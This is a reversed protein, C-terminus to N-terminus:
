EGMSPTSESGDIFCDGDIMPVCSSVGHDAAMRVDDGWGRSELERGSPSEILTRELRDALAVFAGAAALADGSSVDGGPDLAHIIAGAGLLDEVAPRLPGDAGGWREGAAIVAVRECNAAAYEAVAPANRLCGAIVEVTRDDDVAEHILTAGNPSPLVLKTGSPIASLGVPSLSWPNAEDLESGPMAVSAGRDAAYSLETGDYWRYPYIEAGRSVAVDVATTFRLVDVV